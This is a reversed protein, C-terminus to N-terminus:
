KRVESKVVKLIYKQYDFTLGKKLIEEVKKLFYLVGM